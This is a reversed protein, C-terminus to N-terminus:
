QQTLLKQICTAIDNLSEPPKPIIQDFVQPLNLIDGPIIVEYSATYIIFKINKNIKHVSRIFDIGNMGPLRLDVVAVDFNVKNILELGKLADNVETVEYGIDDLFAALSLRVGDDDDLILINAFNNM